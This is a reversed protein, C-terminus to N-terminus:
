KLKHVVIKYLEEQKYTKHPKKEWPTNEEGFLENRTVRVHGCPAKKLIYIM